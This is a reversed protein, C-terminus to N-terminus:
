GMRAALKSLSQSITHWCLSRHAICRLSQSAISTPPPSSLPRRTGRSCCTRPIPTHPLECDQATTATRNHFSLVAIVVLVRRRCRLPYHVREGGRGGAIAMAVPKFRHYTMTIAQTVSLCVITLTLKRQEPTPMHPHPPAVRPPFSLYISLPQGPLEFM